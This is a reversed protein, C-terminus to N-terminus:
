NRRHVQYQLLTFCVLLWKDSIVGVRCWKVLGVCEEMRVRLSATCERLGQCAGCESM